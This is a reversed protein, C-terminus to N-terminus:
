LLQRQDAVQLPTQAFVPLSMAVALLLFKVVTMDILRARTSRVSFRAHDEQGVPFIEPGSVMPHRRWHRQHLEHLNWHGDAGSPWARGSPWGCRRQEYGDVDEVPQVM